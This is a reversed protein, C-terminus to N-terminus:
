CWRVARVIAGGVRRGVRDRPVQVTVTGVKKARYGTRMNGGSRSGRGGARGAEAALHVDMEAELAAQILHQALEPCGARM